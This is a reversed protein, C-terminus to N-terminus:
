LVEDRILMQHQVKFGFSYQIINIKTASGVFVVPSMKGDGDKENWSATEETM